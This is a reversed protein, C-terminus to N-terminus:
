VRDWKLIQCNRQTDDQQDQIELVFVLMSFYPEPSPGCAGGRFNYRSVIPPLGNKHRFVKQKDPSEDQFVPLTRKIFRM